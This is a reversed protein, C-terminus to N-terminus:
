AGKEQIRSVGINDSTRAIREQDTEAASRFVRKAQELLLVLVIGAAFSCLFAVAVILRRNPGSPLISPSAWVLIQASDSSVSPARLAEELQSQAKLVSPHKPGYTTALDALHRQAAKEERTRLYEEAFANAIRASQEPSTSRYSIMILLSGADNKVDLNKLLQAAIVSTASVTSFSPRSHWFTTLALARDLLFSHEAFSPDQTLGLRAVVGEAIERSRILSVETQIVSTANLFVEPQSKSDPRPFRTQVVVESTYWNALSIAVVSAVLVGVACFAAVFYKRRWLLVGLKAFVDENHNEHGATEGPLTTELHSTLM